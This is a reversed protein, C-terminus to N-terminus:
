AFAPDGFAALSEAKAVFFTKKKWSVKVLLNLFNALDVDFKRRL